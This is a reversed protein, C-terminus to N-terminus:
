KKPTKKKNNKNNAKNNNGLVMTSGYEALYVVKNFKMENIKQPKVYFAFRKECLNVVLCAFQEIESGKHINIFCGLYFIHM